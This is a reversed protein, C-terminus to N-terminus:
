STGSGPRPSPESATAEVQESQRNSMGRWIDGRGRMHERSLGLLGGPKRGAPFRQSGPADTFYGIMELSIILSVDRNAARLARTHWASGMDANSPRPQEALTYAVLEISCAPPAQGLLRALELMGAVGSANDDAGAHQQEFRLERRHRAAPRNRPGFRAILNQYARGGMVVNV